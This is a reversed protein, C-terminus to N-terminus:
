TRVPTRVCSFLLLQFDSLVNKQIARMERRSLPLKQRLIIFAGSYLKWRKGVETGEGPPPGYIEDRVAEGVLLIIAYTLLVLAVMQEMYDQRKNMIKTISLLDKIDKFSEEIKMRQYYIELAEEPEMNTMIWLPRSFGKRWVGILNTKIEDKYYVDKYVVKKGMGVQLKIPTHDFDTFKPSDKHKKLRIVYNVGEAVLNKLLELYSFERDLVLPREELLDKIGAFARNHEHNRSTAQANITKSSYTIFWCPIARGRYPTALKMMWYGRTSGDKLTGVYETRKAEPRPMETPDGIVFQAEEQFLRLLSQKVDVQKIFRQILKYNGDPNGSMQHAIHTLRGSQAKTIGEFIMAAKKASEKQDFLQEAFPLFKICKNM